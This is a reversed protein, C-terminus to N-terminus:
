LWWFPSYLTVNQGSQIATSAQPITRWPQRTFRLDVIGSHVYARRGNSPAPLYKTGDRFEELDDQGENFEDEYLPQNGRRGTLKYCAWYTAIERIRPIKQLNAANYRPSLYSLVHSTARQLLTALYNTETVDTVNSSDYNPDTFRLDDTHLNYGKASLEQEIEAISTFYIPQPAPNSDLTDSIYQPFAM